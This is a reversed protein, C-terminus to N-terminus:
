YVACLGCSLQLMVEGTTEGRAQRGKADVEGNIAQPAPIVYEHCAIPELLTCCYMGGGYRGESTRGHDAGEKGNNAQVCSPVRDPQSQAFDAGGVAGGM